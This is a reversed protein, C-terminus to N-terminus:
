PEKVLRMGIHNSSSDPEGKGRTGVMYRSCYQDTCLYSGGRQVRKFVGPETPDRSVLPGRPNHAVDAATALQRYYDDRYWDAIWEWANGAVDYLGYGNPAFRAVPALGKYGDDGTDSVPFRGQWTNAQPQKGPTLEDGWPYLKGTLGGRAAFEWEAETPLRKGAWRAYAL